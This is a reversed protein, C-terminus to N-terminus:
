HRDRRPQKHTRGDTRGDTRGQTSSAPLPRAPPAHPSGKKQPSPDNLALPMGSISKQDVGEGNM